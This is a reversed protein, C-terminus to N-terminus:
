QSTSPVGSSHLPKSSIPPTTQEIDFSVELEKKCCSSRVRRHNIATIVTTGISIILGAFAVITTTNGDM